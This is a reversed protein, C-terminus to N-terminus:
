DMLQMPMLKPEAFGLDAALQQYLSRDAMLEAEESSSNGQV